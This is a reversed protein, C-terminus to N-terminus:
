CKLAKVIANFIETVDAMAGIGEVGCALQGKKPGVIDAIEKIAIMNKRVIKNEWMHVNMAPCIILPVEEPLALV